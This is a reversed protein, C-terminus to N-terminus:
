SFLTAREGDAFRESWALAGRSLIELRGPSQWWDRFTAAYTGAAPECVSLGDAETAAIGEAGIGGTLVPLGAALCELVKVKIGAGRFLPLVAADARDFVLQPDAVFGTVTVRDSALSRVAAPPNSGALILRAEPLLKVLAPLLERGLWQAAESNEVRGLAGWFLLTPGAAGVTRLRPRHREFHPPIIKVRTTTDALLERLLDADKGSQVLMTGARAYRSREWRHARATERHWFAAKLGTAKEAARGCFQFV